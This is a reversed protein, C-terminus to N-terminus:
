FELNPSICNYTLGLSIYLLAQVDNKHEILQETGRYLLGM